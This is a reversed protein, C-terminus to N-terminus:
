WIFYLQLCNPLVAAFSQLDNIKISQTRDYKKITSCIFQLNFRIKSFFFFFIPYFYLASKIAM